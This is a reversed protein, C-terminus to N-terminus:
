HCNQPLVPVCFCKLVWSQCQRNRRVCKLSEPQCVPPEHVAIFVQSGSSSLQGWSRVPFKQFPFCWSPAAPATLREGWSTCLNWSVPEWHRLTQKTKKEHKFEHLHITCIWNVGTIGVTANIQLEPFLQCYCDWLLDAIQLSITNFFFEAIGDMCRKEREGELMLM